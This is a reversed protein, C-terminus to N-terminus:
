RLRAQHGSFTGVVLLGTGLDYDQLQGKLTLHNPKGKVIASATYSAEGLDEDDSAGMFLIGESYYADLNSTSSLENAEIVIHVTNPGTQSITATTDTHAKQQAGTALEYGVASAEMNWTGVIAGIPPTGDPPIGQAVGVWVLGVLGAAAAVVAGGVWGHKSMM